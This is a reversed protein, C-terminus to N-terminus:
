GKPAPENRYIEGVLGMVQEESMEWGEIFASTFAAEELLDMLQSHIRRVEPQDTYLLNVSLSELRNEVIGYLKAATFPQNVQIALAALSALCAAVARKDGVERNIALSEQFYLWAQPIDNEGLALYGLRRL